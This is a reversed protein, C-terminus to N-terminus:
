SIVGLAALRTELEAVRDQLNKIVSLVTNGEDKTVFGFSGSNTLDQIAYDPTGPATFTIDTLALTQSTAGTSLVEDAVEEIYSKLNFTDDVQTAGLGSSAPANGSPTANLPIRGKPEVRKSIFIQKVAM